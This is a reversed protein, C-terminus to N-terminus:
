KPLQILRPFTNPTNEASCLLTASYPPPFADGEKWTSLFVKSIATNNDLQPHGSVDVQKSCMAPGMIAWSSCGASFDSLLGTTSM